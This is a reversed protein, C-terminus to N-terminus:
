KEKYEAEARLKAKELEANEKLTAREASLQAKKEALKLKVSSIKSSASSRSTVASNSKLSRSVTVVPNIINEVELRFKNISQLHPELWTIFSSNEECAAHLNEVKTLYQTFLGKIIAMNNPIDQLLEIIENQKRTVAALHGTPPRGAIPSHEVSM